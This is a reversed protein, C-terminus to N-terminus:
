ANLLVSHKNNDNFLKRNYQANSVSADNDPITAMAAAAANLLLIQSLDDDNPDVFRAINLNEDFTNDLGDYRRNTPSSQTKKKHRHDRRRMNPFTGAKILRDDGVALEQETSSLTKSDNTTEAPRGEVSNTSEMGIRSSDSGSAGYGDNVLFSGSGTATLPPSYILKSFPYYANKEPLVKVLAWREAGTLAAPLPNAQDLLPQPQFQVAVPADSSATRGPPGARKGHAGWCSHGYSLCSGKVQKLCVCILVIIAVLVRLRAGLRCNNAM